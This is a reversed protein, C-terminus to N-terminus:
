DYAGQIDVALSDEKIAEMHPMIASFNDYAGTFKPAAPRHFLEPAIATFGLGAFRETVNRIHSNVGFAEQFVILGRLSEADAPRAVWALMQTGDGLAIEVYESAVKTM